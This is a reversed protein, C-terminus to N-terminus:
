AHAQAERTRAKRTRTAGGRRRLPTGSETLVRHVFGYSRGISAAIQRISRGRDYRQKILKTVQERQAGTIKTYRQLSTTM